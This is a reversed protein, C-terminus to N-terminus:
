TAGVGAARAVPDVDAAKGGSKFEDVLDLFVFVDPVRSTGVSINDLWKGEAKVRLQQGAIRCKALTAFPIPPGDKWSIGQQSLGLKGFKVTEGNSIRRRIDDRIGPNVRRLVMRVAEQVERWNQSITLKRGDRAVLTLTMAGSASGKTAALAILYGILGFHAAAQQGIPVQRFTTSAIEEWRMEKSGFAGQTQVGESHIGLEAKGAAIWLWVALATVAVAIGTSIPELKQDDSYFGLVVLWAVVVAILAVVRWTLNQRFTKEPPSVFM